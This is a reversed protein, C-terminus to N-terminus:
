AKAVCARTRLRGRRARRRRTASPSRTTRTRRCRRCPRAPRCRHPVTRAPRRDYLGGGPSRWRVVGDPWGPPDAVLVEGTDSDVCARVPDAQPLLARAPDAGIPGYRALVAPHDSLGLAVAAPMRVDVTWVGAGAAAHLDVAQEVPCEIVAQIPVRDCGLAHRLAAM